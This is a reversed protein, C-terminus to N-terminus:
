DSRRVMNDMKSIATCSLDLYKLNRCAHIIESAHDSNIESNFSLDLVELSIIKKIQQILCNIVNRNINCSALKLDTLNPCLSVFTVVQDSGNDSLNNYSLDLKALADCVSYDNILQRLHGSKLACCPLSLSTLHRVIKSILDIFSTSLSNGDLYLKLINSQLVEVAACVADDQGINMERLDLFGNTSESLAHLVNTMLRRTRKAYIQAASPKALGSIICKLIKQDGLVLEIPTDDSLECDDHCITMSTYEVDGKLEEKCRERIDGIFCSSAFPMGKTKLHTGDDKTMIIKIFIQNKVSPPTFPSSSVRNVITSNEVNCHRPHKLETSSINRSQTSQAAPRSIVIDEDSDEGSNRKLSRRNRKSQNSEPATFLDPLATSNSNCLLEDCASFKQKMQAIEETETGAIKQKSLLSSSFNSSSSAQHASPSETFDNIDVLSGDVTPSLHRTQWMEDKEDEDSSTGDADLGDLLVNIRDHTTGRGVVDMTKRYENLNSLNSDRIKACAVSSNTKPKTKDNLKLKKPPPEANVVINAEKLKTEMVSVLRKAEKMVDDEVMGVKIANRLFDLATWDDRNKIAVNAGFKLLLDVIATAGRDCAEMLPTLGGSDTREGEASLTGENSRMNLNAGLEDSSTGDVDLGDLLVNIRDHTTGRGVVDMTKRYENLNSLNSDRIKACAVSSNTKPKTKDNLKLKKPPPEANVVINAEKLKTEMVSVLRKAEKMVDDEVMGVKIANRLFDLATWDDRNKIAVNAGFKLLLDVIATAGRDCAEMLPTLGGSDTREGEASLTGENSRMNLNAGLQALIHVNELKLAGVAEHLPTWGGEDRANINYGMEILMKLHHTDSGRAAEHMRTEGYLNIKKDKESRIREEMSHRNAEELVVIYTREGEASLTGENSRMNLNAGLQALIHVNELKLAGVAEHLPTWGGEDRANINYGMEILMKLHHTDSGRAAEHMRTEGYLNIKKDKESRIREEMSHRNAEEYCRALIQTDSLDDWEDVFNEDTEEDNESRKGDNEKDNGLSILKAEIEIRLDRDVDNENMYALMNEYLTKKQHNYIALCESKRFLELVEHPTFSDVNAAASAICLSTDAKKASSINLTNELNEVEVFCNLAEEYRDLEKATEAVSVLAKIKDETQCAYTLMQKYYELSIECFGIEYLSDAVKENIKMKFHEDADPLARLREITKYAGTILIQHFSRQEEADLKEHAKSALMSILDWKAGVFDKARIKEQALIFKAECSAQQDLNSAVHVLEIATKLRQDGSFNIKSLLCRYQLDHDGARVAYAMAAGHYRLSLSQLKMKDCIQSLVQQLRAKRSRSDQGIQVADKDCDIDLAHKSLYALSRECWQKAKELLSEQKANSNLYIQLYLWGLVHYALQIFHVKGSKNAAELYKKGHKELLSEQKANSNLYIQLHLWGLVHYALQIFHVKGSKNAAELYKKGHKLAKTNERITPDVLIEAIARHAFVANEYIKLKEAIEVSKRYYCLAEYQDGVRRYEDGLEVCLDCVKRDDQQKVSKQLQKELEQICENGRRKRKPM